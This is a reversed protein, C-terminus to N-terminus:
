DENSLVDRIGFRDAREEPWRGEAMLKKAQAKFVPDHLDIGM